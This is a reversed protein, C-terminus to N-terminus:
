GFISLDKNSNGTFTEERMIWYFQQSNWIFYPNTHSHQLHLCIFHYIFSDFPNEFSRFISFYKDQFAFSMCKQEQNHKRKRKYKISKHRIHSNNSEAVNERYTRTHTYTATHPLTAELNDHFNSKSLEYIFLLCLWENSGSLFAEWEISTLLTKSRKFKRLATRISDKGEELGVVHSLMLNCTTMQQEWTCVSMRFSHFFQNLSCEFLVFVYCLVLM